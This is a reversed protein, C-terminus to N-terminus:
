DDEIIVFDGIEVWLPLEMKAIAVEEDAANGSKGLMIWKIEKERVVEYVAAAKACHYKEGVLSIERGM